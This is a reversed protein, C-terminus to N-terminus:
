RREKFKYYCSFRKCTAVPRWAWVPTGCICCRYVRVDKGRSAWFVVLSQPPEKGVSLISVGTRVELFYFRFLSKLKRLWERV